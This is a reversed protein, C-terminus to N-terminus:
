LRRLESKRPAVFSEGRSRKTYAPPLPHLPHPLESPIRAKFARRALRTVRGFTIATMPAVRASTSRATRCARHPSLSKGMQAYQASSNGTSSSGGFAPGSGNQARKTEPRPANRKRFSRFATQGASEIMAHVPVGAGATKFSPAKKMGGNRTRTSLSAPSKKGAVGTPIASCTLRRVRSADRDWARLVTCRAPPRAIHVRDSAQRAPWRAASRTLSIRDRAHLILSRITSTRRSIHDKAHHAPSRMPPRNLQAHSTKRAARAAAARRANGATFEATIPERWGARRWLGGAVPCRKTTTVIGLRPHGRRATMCATALKSASNM